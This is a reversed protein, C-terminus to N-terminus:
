LINREVKQVLCDSRRLLRRYPNLFNLTCNVLLYHLPYRFMVVKLPSSLVLAHVLVRFLSVFGVAFGSLCGFVFGIFRCFLFSRYPHDGLRAFDGFGFWRSLAGAWLCEKASPKHYLQINTSFIQNPPTYQGEYNCPDRMLRQM